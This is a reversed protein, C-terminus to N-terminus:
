ASRQLNRGGPEADTASFNDTLVSELPRIRIPHSSVKMIMPCSIFVPGSEFSIASLLDRPSLFEM